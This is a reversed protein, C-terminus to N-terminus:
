IRKMEVERELRKEERELRREEREKEESERVFEVLDAGSLGLAEGQLKARVFSEGLEMARAQSRTTIISMSTFNFCKGTWVVSDLDPNQWM